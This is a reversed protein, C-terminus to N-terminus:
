GDQGGGVPWKTFGESESYTINFDVGGASYVAQWGGGDIPALDRLDESDDEFSARVTALAIANLQEPTPNDPLTVM